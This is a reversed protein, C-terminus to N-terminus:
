NERWEWRKYSGDEEWSWSKHHNRFPRVNWYFVDWKFDSRYSHSFDFEVPSTIIVKVNDPIYLNIEKVTGDWKRNNNYVEGKITMLSDSITIFQTMNRGKMLAEGYTQAMTHIECCVERQSAESQRIIDIGPFVVMDKSKQDIWFLGFDSRDADLFVNETPMKKDTELKIYLTDMDNRLPLTVEETAHSWYPKSAVSAFTAFSFLSIVWLIFIILGPKFRRTRSGFLIQLGAVFMGALPLFLVLLFSLKLWFPNNMGLQVFNLFDIPVVGNFIEIGLFLITLSVIGSLAIMILFVAVIKSFVRFIETVASTGNSSSRRGNDGTQSAGYEVRRQIDSLDLKEGRMACKQEVTKAEPIIIWLIIYILVMLSPGGIHTGLLSFGFSFIVVLVRILLPDVNIYAAFGSCLGAIVKNGPDRFFRKQTMRYSQDKSDEYYQTDEDDIVEPRGLINVVEKVVEISVVSNMGSKEVFLEAIREEIGEIIEGGNQKSKYHAKLEGLYSKLLEFGDEDITFALNGISVKVVKKM